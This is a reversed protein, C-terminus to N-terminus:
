TFSANLGSSQPFQPIVEYEKIIENAYVYNSIILRWFGPVDPFFRISYYGLSGNIQNFYVSGSAISSDSINTGDVLPWDLLENNVFAVLGLNTISINHERVLGIYYDLQDYAVCCTTIQKSTCQPNNM